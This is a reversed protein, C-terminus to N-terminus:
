HTIKAGLTLKNAFLIILIFISSFILKLFFEIDIIVGEISLACLFFSIFVLYVDVIGKNTQFKRVFEFFMCSSLLFLIYLLIGIFVNGSLLIMNGLMGVSYSGALPRIYTDNFEGLSTSNLITGSAVFDSVWLFPTLGNIRELLNRISKLGIDLFSETSNHWSFIMSPNSIINAIFNSFDDSESIMVAFQYPNFFIYIVFPFSAIIFLRYNIRGLNSALYFILYGLIPILSAGKSGTFLLNSLSYLIILYFGSRKLFLAFFAPIIFLCIVEIVGNLRFPLSVTGGASINLVNLKLALVYTAFFFILFFILLSSKIKKYRLNIESHRFNCISGAILFIFFTSVPIFVLLLINLDSIDVGVARPYQEVLDLQYLFNLFGYSLLFHVNQFILFSFTSQHLYQRMVWIFSSSIITLLLLIISFLEM